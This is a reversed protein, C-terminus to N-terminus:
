TLKQKEENIKNHLDLPLKKYESLKILKNKTSLGDYITEHEHDTIIYKKDINSLANNLTDKNQVICNWTNQNLIGNNFLIEMSESFLPKTTKQLNSASIRGALLNYDPHELSMTAAKGAALDDIQSVHIGDILGNIVKQVLIHVNISSKCLGTCLKVIRKTIKDFEVMETRGDRKIVSLTKFM